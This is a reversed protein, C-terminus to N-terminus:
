RLTSGAMSREWFSIGARRTAKGAWAANSLLVAAVLCRKFLMKMNRSEPNAPAQVAAALRRM